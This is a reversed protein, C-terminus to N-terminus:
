LRNSATALPIIRNEVVESGTEFGTPSANFWDQNMVEYSFEMNIEGISLGTMALIKEYFILNRLKTNRSAIQNREVARDYKRRNGCVANMFSVMEFYYQKGQYEVLLHKEESDYALAKINPLMAERDEIKLGKPFEEIIATEEAQYVRFRNKYAMMFFASFVLLFEALGAKGRGKQVERDLKAELKDIKRNNQAHIQALEKTRAEVLRLVQQNLEKQSTKAALFLNTEDPSLWKGKRKARLQEYFTINTQEQKLQKRAMALSTDLQKLNVSGTDAEILAIQASIDKTNILEGGESQIAWCLIVLALNTIPLMIKYATNYRSWNFCLEASLKTVVHTAMVVIGMLIFGVLYMFAPHIPFVHIVEDIMTSIGASFIVLLLLTNLFFVVIELQSLEKFQKMIFTWLKNLLSNKTTFIGQKEIEENVKSEM